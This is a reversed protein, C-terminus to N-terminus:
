GLRDGAIAELVARSFTRRDFPKTVFGDARRLLGHHVIASEAYGSMFLVKLDPRIRTLGQALMEGSLDPM